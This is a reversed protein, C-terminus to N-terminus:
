VAKTPALSKELEKYNSPESDASLLTAQPYFFFLFNSFQVRHGWDKVPSKPWPWMSLKEESYVHVPKMELIWFQHTWPPAQTSPFIKGASPQTLSSRQGPLQQNWKLRQTQRRLNNIECVPRRKRKWGAKGAKDAGQSWSTLSGLVRSDRRIELACRLGKGDPGAKQWHNGSGTM